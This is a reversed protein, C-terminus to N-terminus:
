PIIVRRLCRIMRATTKTSFNGTQGGNSFAQAWAEDADTYETSTFYTSASFGGLLSQKGGAYGTCNPMELPNAVSHAGTPTAKCYVYAMETKSPLFWDTRGGFQMNSCFHAAAAGPLAATILATAVEGSQTAIDTGLALTEVAPVDGTANNWVKSVTDTGGSCVPNTSDTCGSPTIFYKYFNSEGSNRFTGAFITGDSCIAGVAPSGACPDGGANALIQWSTGNCFRLKGSTNEFEIAGANSCGVSDNGGNMSLFNTGNCYYFDFPVSNRFLFQGANGAGCVPSGGGWAAGATVNVWTTGDCLAMTNLTSLYRFHGREGAPSACAAWVSQGTLLLGLFCIMLPRTM